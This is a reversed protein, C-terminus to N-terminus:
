RKVIEVRRNKARGEETANDAVPVNMGEGKASLRAEDIGHDEVLSTVVADARRQSLRLNADAAGVNDTHGVIDLKLAPQAQLLAAIQAITEVSEPKLASKNTDFQIGYLALRGDSALATAMQDATVTVMRRERAKPSVAVVLVGTRGELADCYSRDGIQFAVIGLTREGGTGDPLTALAYHQETPTGGSACKGNSFDADRVRAQPYIQEILGQNGGGHDNGNLDGGCGTDVCQWVVAGGGDAVVDLYNRLVELPSRDAPAVYLLRDYEGEVERNSDARHVRNNMADSEDAVPELKSAPFVVADFNRHEHSVIFSGEYRPLWAPDAAGDIDATPVTADAAARTAALLCLLAAFLFKM